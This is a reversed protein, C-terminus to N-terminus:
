AVPWIPEDWSRGGTRVLRGHWAAFTKDFAAELGKPLEADADFLYGDNVGFVPVDCFDCVQKATVCMTFQDRLVILVVKAEHCVLMRTISATATLRNAARVISTWNQGALPECVIKERGGLELRERIAKDIRAAAHTAPDAGAGGDEADEKHEKTESGKSPKKKSAKKGGIKKRSARKRPKGEATKKEAKGPAKGPSAKTSPVVATSTGVFPPLTRIAARDLMMAGSQVTVVAGDSPIDVTALWAATMKCDAYSTTDGTAPNLVKVAMGKQAADDDENGCKYYKVLLGFYAPAQAGTFEVTHNFFRM